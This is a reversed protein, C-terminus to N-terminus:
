LGGNRKKFTKWYEYCVFAFVFMKDKIEQTKYLNIGLVIFIHM